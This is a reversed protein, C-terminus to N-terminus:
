NYKKINLKMKRGRACFWFRFLREAKKVAGNLSRHDTSPFPESNRIGFTNGIKYIHVPKSDKYTVTAVKKMKIKAQM